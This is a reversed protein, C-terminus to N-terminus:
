NLWRDDNKPKRPPPSTPPPPVVALHSRAKAYKRRRWWAIPDLHGSAMAAGVATAALAGGGNEWDENLLVTAVLVALMGWMFQRGTIPLVGFFQLQARGHIIGFAIAAAFLTADLGLIPVQPRTALGILSGVLTGVIATVAVFVAFRRPGWWRELAPLFMWVMAAEFILSLMNIELFPGTLLTWVRGHRWVLDGTPALWSAIRLQGTESSLAFVLSTALLAFLLLFAVRTIRLQSRDFQQFAPRRV